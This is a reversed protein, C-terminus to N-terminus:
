LLWLERGVVLRGRASDLGVSLLRVVMAGMSPYRSLCFAHKDGTNTIGEGIIVCSDNIAKAVTLVKFDSQSLDCLTNLDFMQDNVYLFAHESNDNTTSSGVIMGAANTGQGGISSATSTNGGFTGLDTVSYSLQAEARTFIAVLFFLAALAVRKRTEM